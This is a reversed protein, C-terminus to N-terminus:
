IGTFNILLEAIEPDLPRLVNHHAREAYWCACALALVMDDHQGERWAGYSDHGKDSIRYRFNLLEQTLIHVGSLGAAFKLRKQQLKVQIASILDRKPVSFGGGESHVEDGGHITIAVPKLGSTRLMDLVPRGVGTADVALWVRTEADGWMDLSGKGQQPIADMLDQIHEAIAPYSTGLPMRELHVVHYRYNEVDYTIEQRKRWANWQWHGWVVEVVVIATPDRAQGLDVGVVYDVLSNEDM